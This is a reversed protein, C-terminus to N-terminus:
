GLVYTSPFFIARFRGGGQGSFEGTALEFPDRHMKRSNETKREFKYVHRRFEETSLSSLM